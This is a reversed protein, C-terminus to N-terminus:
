KFKIEKRLLMTAIVLLLSAVGGISSAIWVLSWNLNDLSAGAPTDYIKYKGLIIFLVVSIVGSCIGFIVKMLNKKINFNVDFSPGIIDTYIGIKTKYFIRTVCELNGFDGKWYSSTKGRIKFQYISYPRLQIKRKNITIGESSTLIIERKSYLVKSEQVVPDANHITFSVDEEDKLLIVSEKLGDATEKVTIHNAKSTGKDDYPGELKWFSDNKFQLEQLMEVIAFWNSDSSEGGLNSLEKLIEDSEIYTHWKLFPAREKFENNFTEKHRSLNKLNPYDGLLIDYVVKDAKGAKGSRQNKACVVTSLRFPVWHEIMAKDPINEQFKSYSAIEGYFHIVPIKKIKGAPLSEFQILSKEDFYKKTYDYRVVMGKPLTIVKHLDNYYDPKTCTDWIVVFGM